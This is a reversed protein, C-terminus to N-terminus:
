LYKKELYRHYTAKDADTEELVGSLSDTIPTNSPYRTQTSNKENPKALKELIAQNEIGKQQLRFELFQVFAWLMKPPLAQAHQAIQEPLNM